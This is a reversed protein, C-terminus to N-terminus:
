QIQNTDQSDQSDFHSLMPHLIDTENDAPKIFSSIFTDDQNFSFNDQCSQMHKQLLDKRKLNEELKQFQQPKKHVQKHKQFLSKYPLVKSCINCKYESKM